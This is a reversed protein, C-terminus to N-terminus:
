SAATLVWSRDVLAGTCARLNDGIVLRATSTYTGDAAEAGVVAGAPSVTSLTGAAAAAVLVGARRSRFQSKRSM